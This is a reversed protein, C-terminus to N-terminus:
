LPNEQPAIPLSVRFVTRGPRSEFAIWGGVDNLITSVLTLGLGTGNQRGSVFPEFANAAIEANLGKGNDIIEVHIPLIKEEGDSDRTRLFPDYRTRIHIYGGESDIAESANQLLNLFVQLLQDHDAWVEPLSPDFETDIRLGAACGLHASRCARDLLDHVNFARCENFATQGFQDVREILKRIRHAEDVILESLELDASQLKISLLQAAGIIAALPNRIEHSLMDALGIASRAASKARNGHSIKGEIERSRFCLLLRGTQDDISALPALQLTTPLRVRDPLLIVFDDVLVSAQRQRAHLLNEELISAEAALDMATMGTLSRASRNFLSEAAPNVDVIRDTADVVVAAIPLSAWIGFYDARTSANAPNETFQQSLPRSRSGNRRPKRSKM